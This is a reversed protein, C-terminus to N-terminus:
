KWWVKFTRIKELTDEFNGNHTVARDDVYVQAPVKWNSVYTIYQDLQHQKLWSVVGELPITATFVVVTAFTDQLTKLFHEVGNAPSTYEVKGKWGTYSDLVGNFDVCIVPWQPSHENEVSNWFDVPNALINM